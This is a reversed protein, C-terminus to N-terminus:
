RLLTAELLRHRREARPQTMVRVRRRQVGRQALCQGIHSTTADPARMTAAACTTAAILDNHVHSACSATSHSQLDDRPDARDLQERARRTQPAAEARSSYRDHHAFTPPPPLHAWGNLIALGGRSTIRSRATYAGLLRSPRARLVLWRASLLKHRSMSSSQWSGHHALASRSGGLFKRRAMTALPSRRARLM